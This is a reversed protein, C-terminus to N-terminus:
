PPDEHSRGRQDVVQVGTLNPLHSVRLMEAVRRIDVEHQEFPLMQCRFWVAVVEGNRTEVDLHGTHHITGGDGYFRGEPGALKQKAWWRPKLLPWLASQDVKSRLFHPWGGQYVVPGRHLPKRERM